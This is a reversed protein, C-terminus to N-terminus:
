NVNQRLEVKNSLFNAREQANIGLPSHRTVLDRKLVNGEIEKYFWVEMGVSKSFYGNRWCLQSSNTPTLLGGHSTLKAADLVNSKRICCTKTSIKLNLNQFWKFELLLEKNSNQM